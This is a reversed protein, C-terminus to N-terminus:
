RVMETMPWRPNVDSNRAESKELTTQLQINCSWQMMEWRSEKSFQSCVPVSSNKRKSLLFLLSHDTKMFLLVCETVM